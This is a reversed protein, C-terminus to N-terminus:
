TRPCGHRCALLQAVQRQDLLGVPQQTGGPRRGTGLGGVRLGLRHRHEGVHQGFHPRVTLAEDDGVLHGGLKRRLDDLVGVDLDQVPQDGGVVARDDGRRDVERLLLAAMQGSQRGTLGDDM